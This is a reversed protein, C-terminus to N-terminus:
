GFISDGFRGATVSTEHSMQRDTGVAYYFCGGFSMHFYHATRAFVAEFGVPLEKDSGSAVLYCRKAKLSRGLDKRVELLDTWRDMFVKLIGSMSYWYVPTALIIVDVTAMQEAIRHFDDGRNRHGYDFPSIEWETLDILKFPRDRLIADVADMTNGDSRSSGLIVLVKKM